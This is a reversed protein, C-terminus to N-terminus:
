LYKHRLARFKEAWMRKQRRLTYHKARGITSREPGDATIDSSEGRTQILPASIMLGTNTRTLWDRFFNDLPAWIKTHQAVFKEAGSRSWLLGTARMPFYHARMLSYESGNATIPALVTTIKSRQAGINILDWKEEHAELWHLAKRIVEESNPDIEMDDELVIGYPEGRDLFKQAADLHSLYCGVEGGNLQRGLYALAAPEDYVQWGDECLSRGDVAPVRTFILGQADLLEKTQALRETSRDLNIVFIPPMIKEQVKVRQIFVKSKKDDDFGFNM